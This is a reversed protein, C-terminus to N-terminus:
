RRGGFVAAALVADLDGLGGQFPNGRAIVRTGHPMVVVLKPSSSTLQLERRVRVDELAAVAVGTEDVFVRQDRDFVAVPRYSTLPASRARRIRLAAVVTCGGVAIGALLFGVSVPWAITDAGAATMSLTIAGFGGVVLAVVGLTFTLTAWAGTGRDVVVVLPGQEAVVIGSAEALIRPERPAEMGPLRGGRAATIAADVRM